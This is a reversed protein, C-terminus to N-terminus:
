YPMPGTPAYDFYDPGYFTDDFTDGLRIDLKSIAKKAGGEYANEMAYQHENWTDVEGTLTAVGNEVSVDIDDSDVFLSWFLQSEIDSKLESDPKWTWRHIDIYDHVESVGILQEAAQVAESKEYYSDARGSLYAEGNVVSVEIDLPDTWPNISLARQVRQEIEADSLDVENRVKLLNKVAAVGVTNRVDAEAARKAALNDVAGRLTVIGNNSEVIVGSLLVRPDYFLADEIAAELSADVPTTYKIDRRMADRMSWDVDLGEANVEKVGTVWAKTIARQRERESGVEGTLAVKEDDVKVRILADDIWVSNTLLARVEDAIETDLREQDTNWLINNEIQTVGRVGKTTTGALTREHWSDVTGDLTVTGNEANVSIDLIDTAPDNALAWRVDQEIVKNSRLPSAIDIRDVVSRVGRLTQALAVAREKELLHDAEGELTVIGDSVMVDIENSNVATDLLYETEVADAIEQDSALWGVAEASIPVSWMVVACIATSVVVSIRTFSQHKWMSRINM